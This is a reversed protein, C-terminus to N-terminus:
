LVDREGPVPRFFTLLLADWEHRREAENAGYLAALEECDRAGQVAHFMASLRASIYKIDEMPMTIPFETTTSTRHEKEYTEFLKDRVGLM